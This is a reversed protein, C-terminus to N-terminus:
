HVQKVASVVRNGSEIIPSKMANRIVPLAINIWFKPDIKGMELYEDRKNRDNVAGAKKGDRMEYKIANGLCFLQLASDAGLPTCIVVYARLLDGIVDIVESGDPLKYYAPRAAARKRNDSRDTDPSLVTASRKADM